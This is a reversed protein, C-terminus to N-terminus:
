PDGLCRSYQLGRGAQLIETPLDGTRNLRARSQALTKGSRSLLPYQSQCARDSRVNGASRSSYAPRLRLSGTSDHHTRRLVAIYSGCRWRLGSTGMNGRRRCLGTQQSSGQWFDANWKDLTRIIKDGWNRYEELESLDPRNSLALVRTEIWAMADAVEANDGCDVVWADVEPLEGPKLQEPSVRIVKYGASRVRGALVSTTQECIIGIVPETIM